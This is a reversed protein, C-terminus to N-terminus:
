KTRTGAQPRAGRGRVPSGDRLRLDGRRADLFEPDTGYSGGVERVPLSVRDSRAPRDICYWHNNAFRFTEPATGTGINAIGRTEDSRFAVLNNSFSGNRCPVFPDGRSEQLIRIVYREPRYITNYRVVAGDVGVFCIPASSGVFTCDEVTIDKAEYPLAKPRFYPLGTSGGLNVSRGGANDFRCSRIAIDSSGGKTQVGNAAIDSRHRFSCGSVEGQHCGVMDIASGRDGWREIVCDQVRFHDLGSLKIGDRNGSPGVDRVTLEHLVVHHAPTDYSGGDDINLGNGTAETLVLNRLEVFAPDSLQFCSSRGKFIPPDNKDAGALIIPKGQQGQLGNFHLGGAYTGPAILITTGPKANEVARVIQDRTSVKVTQSPSLQNFVFFLVVSLLLRGVPQM